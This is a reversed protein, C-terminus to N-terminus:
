EKTGSFAKLWWDNLWGQWSSSKKNLEQVQNVTLDLDNQNDILYNKWIEPDYGKKELEYYVSLPSGKKGLLPALKKSVDLSKAEVDKRPTGSTGIVGMGGPIVKTKTKLSPLSDIESSLDKQSSVPNALAYAFPPSLGNEGILTDALERSENRSSFQKRLNKISSLIKEPSDLILNYNGLGKVASYDRSIKEADEGFKTSAQKETMKGDRVSAIAENEIKSLVNGPINAGRRQIEKGLESEAKSQVDQELQRKRIMADSIAQEQNYKNQVAGLASDFSVGPNKSMLESAEKVLQQYPPPVFPQLTAQVGEKTTASQPSTSPSASTFDEQRPIYERPQQTQASQQDQFIKSFAQQKALDGFSQVMQPTIGPISSLRTLQQLPTLNASDKELAKLGSSLRYREVEKPIQESLGQGIGKGIRGFLDGDQEIIQVM